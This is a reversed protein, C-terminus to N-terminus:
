NADVLGVPFVKVTRNDGKGGLRIKRYANNNTQDTEILNGKPNAEVAIYYIGNPLKKVNFSQGPLGQIYTDGSGTDLVERVSLSGYDGCSTHLDTNYPRWNAGPVTYDVADTNALCFAEKRSRVVLNMDADLLRYRAFDRFHWHTHGDRPDWEMEGALEYGVQNGDADYFYQYADMVDETQRRFGDVVLPSPGANWVTAAFEMWGKKNIQIGYAPLSRLDPMTDPAPARKSSPATPEEAAPKTPIRSSAEATHDRDKCGLRACGHGHVVKVQVTANSDEPTLGLPEKYTKDIWVQAKYTGVGLEIGRGYPNLVPVGFGPDIGYVGGLTFANFPCELPYTSVDPADLRVRVADGTPCFRQTKNYVVKGNPKTLKLHVFRPLGRFNELLGDPLAIDGTQTVIRASIPDTYDPSRNARIEFAEDGAVAYVGLNLYVRKGYKEVTVSNAAKQLSVIPRAARKEDPAGSAGPPAGWSVLVTTAALGLAAATATLRRHHM